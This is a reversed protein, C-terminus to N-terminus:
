IISINYQDNSSRGEYELWCENRVERFETWDRMEFTGPFFEAVGVREFQGKVDGIPRLLLCSVSRARIFLPLCHFDPQSQRSPLKCDYSVYVDDENWWRGNFFVPWPDRSEPGLTISELWGSLRLIGGTVSSTTDDTTNEVKCDTINILTTVESDTESCMSLEIRGDLSAWSWSPARYPKPRPRLEEEECSWFLQTVLRKRWLGACYQDDLAQEMLKAIGALAVLKDSTYTLRKTTYLEVIGKWLKWLDDQPGTKSGSEIGGSRCGANDLLGGIAARSISTHQLIPPLGEPYTECAKLEYCEWFLQTGGLHLIRPALLLEQVVWARKMLPMDAFADRWFQDYYLIYSYNHCDVWASQVTCPKVTSISREPFCGTESDAAVSAAINLTAFRYVSSMLHAEQQWDQASDQLICLSDIWIFQIGLSEATFIADQFTQGLESIAIGEQLQYLSESTLKSVHSDGWCHSLTAYQIQTEERKPNILLRIKERSPQGIHLLRTPSYNTSRSRQCTSHGGSCQDRWKRAFIISQSWSTPGCLESTGSLSGAELIDETGVM